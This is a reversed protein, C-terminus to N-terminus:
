THSRPQEICELTLQVHLHMIAVNLLQSLPDIINYSNIAVRYSAGAAHINM